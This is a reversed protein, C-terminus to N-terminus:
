AEVEVCECKPKDGTNWSKECRPCGIVVCEWYKRHKM